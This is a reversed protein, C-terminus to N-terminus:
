FEPAKLKPADVKKPVEVWFWGRLDGEKFGVAQDSPYREKLEQQIDASIQDRPGHCATCAPQIGIPKLLGIRDGLDVVFGDVGAIPKGAHGAVIPAAWARPANTPNRLRHSTRGAAVGGKRAVDQAVSTASLHCVRVASSPGGRQMQASLEALLAVQMATIVAEGRKVADALAPPATSMSYSVPSQGTPQSAGSAALAGFALLFVCVRAM